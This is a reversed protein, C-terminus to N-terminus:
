KECSILGLPCKDDVPHGIYLAAGIALIAATAILLMKTNM